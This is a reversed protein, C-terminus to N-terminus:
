TKLSSLRAGQFPRFNQKKVDTFSARTTRMRANFDVFIHLTQLVYYTLIRARCSVSASRVVRRATEQTVSRLRHGTSVRCQRRGRCQTEIVTCLLSRWFRSPTCAQQCGRRKYYIFVNSIQTRMAHM